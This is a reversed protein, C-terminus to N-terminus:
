ATGTAAAEGSWSPHEDRRLKEFYDLDDADPEGFAERWCTKLADLGQTYAQWLQGMTTSIGAAELMEDADTAKGIEEPSPTGPRRITSYHVCHPRDSEVLEGRAILLDIMAPMNELDYCWIVLKSGLLLESTTGRVRQARREFARTM